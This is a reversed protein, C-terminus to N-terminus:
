ALGAMVFRRRTAAAFPPRLAIRLAADRVAANLPSRARGLSTNLAARAIARRAAARRAAAVTALTAAPDPPGPAEGLAAVLAGGDLWGLNMGQGGIPSLVHAADGVLLVRGVAFRDALWREIGFTSASAAGTPDLPVGLRAGAADAVRIAIDAVAGDADVGATGPRAVVWRRLGGPLPFGEVVGDPHLVVWAEDPRFRSADDHLDAMAYRDPYPGGRRAVGLAQRVFGDRGDAGIMLHAQWEDEAGAETRTRLRVSTADQTLGVVREGWRLAGPAAAELAARLTRETTAQPVTLVYPFRADAGDLRVEGIPGHAGQARGVRVRRGAAVLADAVGLDALVALGPPHVGIARSGRSPESRAEFVVVDYGRHVLGLALALGVPGAGVVAVDAAAHGAM